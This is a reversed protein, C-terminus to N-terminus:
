ECETQELGKSISKAFGADTVSVVGVKKGICLGLEEMTMELSFLRVGSKGCFFKVEKLSKPSIDDAYFVSKAEGNNISDKVMDMGMVMKGAKRCMSLIGRKNKQRM